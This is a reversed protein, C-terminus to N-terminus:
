HDGAAHEPQAIFGQSLPEADREGPQPKVKAIQRKGAPPMSATAARPSFRDVREATM